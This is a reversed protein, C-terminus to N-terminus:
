KNESRNKELDSLLIAQVKLKQEENVNTVSIYLSFLMKDREEQIPHEDITKLLIDFKEPRLKLYIAITENDKGENERTYLLKNLILKDPNPSIIGDNHERTDWLSRLSPVNYYEGLIGQSFDPDAILVDLEGFSSRFTASDQTFGEKKLIIQCEQATELDPCVIDYDMTTFLAGHEKCEELCFNLANRGILLCRDKDQNLKRLINIM